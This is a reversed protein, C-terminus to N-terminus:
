PSVQLRFFLKGWTEVDFYQPYVMSSNTAIFPSGQNTWANMDGSVQLQYNTGVSLFSFSPKVAKILDVRPGSEMAYLKAVESSSLARNYIRIDDIVGEFQNVYFDQSAGIRTVASRSVPTAPYNVEGINEGNLFVRVKDSYTVTVHHWTKLTIAHGTYYAGGRGGAGEGYYEVYLENGSALIGIDHSPADFTGACVLTEAYPAPRGMRDERFWLSYTLPKMASANLPIDIYQGGTFNYEQNPNGFRNTTLTAGYVTGNVGNGSADNADGNFPYFAVLGNTLFSQSYGNVALGIGVILLSLTRASKMFYM